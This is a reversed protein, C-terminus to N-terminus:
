EDAADSTYLLCADDPGAVIQGAGAAGFATAVGATTVRGIARGNSLWLNGDPGSTIWNPAWLQDPLPFSTLEGTPTMRHLTFDEAFWVNGDPGTAMAHPREPYTARVSMAGTATISVVVLDGGLLGRETVYWVNGDPGVGFSVVFRGVTDRYTRTSGDMAVRTLATYGDSFWLAGDGARVLRDNSSRVGFGQFVSIAPHTPFVPGPLADSTASATSAGVPRSATGILGVVM